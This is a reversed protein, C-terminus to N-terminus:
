RSACPARTHLTWRGLCRLCFTPSSQLKAINDKSKAVFIRQVERPQLVPTKEWGSVAAPATNQHIRPSPCAAPRTGFRVRVAQCTSGHQAATTYLARCSDTSRQTMSAGWACRVSVHNARSIVQPEMDSGVFFPSKLSMRLRMLSGDRSGALEVEDKM